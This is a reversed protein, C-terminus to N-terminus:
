CLGLQDLYLIITIYQQTRNAINQKSIKANYSINTQPIREKYNRQRTKNLLLAPKM